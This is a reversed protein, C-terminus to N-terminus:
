VEVGDYTMQQWQHRKNLRAHRSMVGDGATAAERRAESHCDQNIDCHWKGNWRVSIKFLMFVGFKNVAEGM